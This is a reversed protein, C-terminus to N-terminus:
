GIAAEDVKGNVIVIGLRDSQFDKTTSMIEGDRRLVRWKIGNSKFLVVADVESLGVVEELISNINKSANVSVLGEDSIVVKHSRVEGTLTNTLTVIVTGASKLILGSYSVQGDITQAQQISAVAENDVSVQWDLPPSAMFIVADKNLVASVNADTANVLIPNFKSDASFEVEPEDSAKEETVAIETDKKPGETSCSSVTFPILIALITIIIRSANKEKLIRM